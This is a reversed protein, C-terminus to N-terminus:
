VWAWVLLDTFNSLTIGLGPHLTHQSWVIWAVGHSQVGPLHVCVLVSVYNHGHSLNDKVTWVVENTGLGCIGSVVYQEGCVAKATDNTLHRGLECVCVCVFARVCAYVSVYM